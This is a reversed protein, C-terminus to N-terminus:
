IFYVGSVLFTAGAAGFHLLDPFVVNLRAGANGTFMYGGGVGLPFPTDAYPAAFTPTFVFSLSTELNAFIENTILYMLTAGLTLSMTFKDTFRNLGLSLKPQAFIWLKQNLLKFLFPADIDMNLMTPEILGGLVSLTAQVAFMEPIITYRGYANLNSVIAKAHFPVFFFHFGGGIELSDMLGYSYSLPLGFPDHTNVDVGVLAESRGSKLSIGRAPFINRRAVPSARVSLLEAHMIAECMEPNEFCNIEAQVVRPMAIGLCILVGTLFRGLRRPEQM